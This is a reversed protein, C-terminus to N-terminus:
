MLARHQEQEEEFFRIEYIRKKDIKILSKSSIETCKETIKQKNIKYIKLKTFLDVCSRRCDRVFGELIGKSSWKLKVLGPYIVRETLELHQKFLKKEDSDM